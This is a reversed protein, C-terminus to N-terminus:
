CFAHDTNWDCQIVLIIKIGSRLFFVLSAVAESPSVVIKHVAQSSSVKGDAADSFSSSLQKSERLDLSCYIGVCVESLSADRFNIGPSPTLQSHKLLRSFSCLNAGEIMYRRSPVVIIHIM